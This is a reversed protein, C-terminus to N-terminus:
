DMGALLNGRKCPSAAEAVRVTIRGEPIPRGTKSNEASRAVKGSFAVIPNGLPPALWGLPSFRRQHKPERGGTQLRPIGQPDGREEADERGAQMCLLLAVTGPLSGWSGPLSAAGQM